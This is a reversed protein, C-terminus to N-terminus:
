IILIGINYYGRNFIAELSFSRSILLCFISGAIAEEKATFFLSAIKSKKKILYILATLTDAVPEKFVKLLQGALV